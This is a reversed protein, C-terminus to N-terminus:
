NIVSNLPNRLEHSFTSNILSLLESEASSSDIMIKQSINNFSLLVQNDNLM